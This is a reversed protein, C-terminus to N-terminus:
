LLLTFFIEIACIFHYVLSLHEYREEFLIECTLIGRLYGFDHSFKIYVAKNDENFSSRDM